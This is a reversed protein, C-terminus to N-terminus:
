SLISPPGRKCQYPVFLPQLGPPKRALVPVLSIPRIQLVSLIALGIEHFSSSALSSSKRGRKLRNPNAPDNSSFLDDLESVYPSNDTAAAFNGAGDNILVVADRHSTGVWVLDVDGDRDIDGAVLRGADVTGTAFAFESSRADAFNIKIRKDFGSSQLTARDQSSDADLDCTATSNAKAQYTASRSSHRHRRGAHARPIYPLFVLAILAIAAARKFVNIARM